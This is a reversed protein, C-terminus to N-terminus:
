AGALKKSLKLEVPAGANAIRATMGPASLYGQLLGLQGLGQGYAEQMKPLLSLASANFPQYNQAIQGLQQDMYAQAKKAAKQRAAANARAAAARSAANAQAWAAYDQNYKKTAEYEQRGREWDDYVARNIVDQYNDRSNQGSIYDYVGLGGKILKENDTLFDGITDLWGM